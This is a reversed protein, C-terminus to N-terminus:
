PGGESRRTTAANLGWRHEHLSLIGSLRTLATTHLAIVLRPQGPRDPDAPRAPEFYGWIYPFEPPGEAVVRTLVALEFRGETTGPRLRPETDVPSEPMTDLVGLLGATAQVSRDPATLRENIERIQQMELTRSTPDVGRPHGPHTFQDAM